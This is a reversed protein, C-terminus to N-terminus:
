AIDGELAGVRLDVAKRLLVEVECDAPEARHEEAVGDGREGVDPPRQARGSAQHHHDPLGV